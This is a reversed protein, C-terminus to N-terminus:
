LSGSPQQPLDEEFLVDFLDTSDKDNYTPHNHLDIGKKEYFNCAQLCLPIIEALKEIETLFVAYHGSSEYLDYFFICRESFSLIELVWHHKDRIYVSIFINDVTHWAVAAHMHFGNIYENLHSEHGEATLNSDDVSYVKIVSWAHGRSILSDWLTLNIKIRDHDEVITESHKDNLNENPTEEEHNTTQHIIISKRRYDDLSPLVEDSITFQSYSLITEDRIKTGDLKEGLNHVVNPSFCQASTETGVYDMHQFDPDKDEHQQEIFKINTGDFMKKPNQLVDFSYHQGSIELGGADVNTQEFEKDTFQEQDCFEDFVKKSTIVEKKVPSRQKSKAARPTPTRKQTHEDVINHSEKRMLKKVALTSSDVKQKKLSRENIQKSPPDQFDDDSDVLCEDELGDKKGDDNFMADMLFEFRSRPVNTKLNLLQSIRNDVKSAIKRPVNSSCEYLWVQITMPMGQILYFKEGAKLRNNLSRALDEFSLTGWSFNKYRGSDNFYKEVIRNPVEEDFIFDYRNAVYNLDTIIAFERPTFHLSTNNARIVIASSSSGKIELSM